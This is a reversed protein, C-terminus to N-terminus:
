SVLIGDDLDTLLSINQNDHFSSDDSKATKFKSPLWFARQFIIFIVTSDSIRICSIWVCFNLNISATCHHFATFFCAATVKKTVNSHQLLWTWRLLLGVHQKTWVFRRQLWEWCCKSYWMAEKDQSFDGSCHLQENLHLYFSTNFQDKM